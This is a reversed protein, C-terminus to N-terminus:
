VGSMGGEQFSRRGSVHQNRLILVTAPGQATQVVLHPVYHDRFWCSQAYTIRDSTIELKVGAGRLAEDMSQTDVHQRMLWSEPEERVHAVVDRALTESPRLLWLSLVGLMALLVSAALAWSRWAPTVRPTRALQPPQELARRINADLTRMEERFQRCAACERVHEELSANSEAPDAGIQLRIQECSM